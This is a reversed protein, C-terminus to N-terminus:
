AAKEAPSWWPFCRTWHSPKEGNAKALWYSKLRVRKKRYAQKQRETSAQYDKWALMVPSNAPEPKMATM